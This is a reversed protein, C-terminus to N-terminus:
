DKLPKPPGIFYIGTNNKEKDSVKTLKKASWSNIIKRVDKANSCKILVPLLREMLYNQDIFSAIDILEQEDDDDNQEFNEVFHNLDIYSHSESDSRSNSDDSDSDSYSDSEFQEDDDHINNNDHDFSFPKCLITNKPWFFCNEPNDDVIFIDTLPCNFSYLDKYLRDYKIECSDVYKRHNEDIMPCLDDIIPKAYPIEGATYIYVEFLECVKQLFERVHPREFVLFEQNEIKLYIINYDVKFYDHGKRNDNKSNKDKSKTIKEKIKPDFKVKWQAKSISSLKKNKKLTSPTIEITHILTEDLDLVLINKKEKTLQQKSMTTKSDSRQMKRLRFQFRKPKQDLSCPVSLFPNSNDSEEEEEYTSFSEKSNFSSSSTTRYKTKLSNSRQRM